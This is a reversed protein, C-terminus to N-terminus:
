TKGEVPTVAVQAALPQQQKTEKVIVVGTQLLNLAQLNINKEDEEQSLDELGTYLKSM